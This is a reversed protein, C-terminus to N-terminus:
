TLKQKEKMKWLATNRKIDDCSPEDQDVIDDQNISSCEGVKNGSSSDVLECHHRQLHKRYGSASNFTVSCCTVNFNGSHVRFLYLQLLNFTPAIFDTCKPCSHVM